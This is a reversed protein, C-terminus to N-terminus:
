SKGLKYNGVTLIGPLEINTPWIYTIVTGTSDIEYTFLSPTGSMASCLTSQDVPKVLYEKFINPAIKSVNAANTSNPLVVGDDRRFSVVDFGRDLLNRRSEAVIRTLREIHKQQQEYLKPPTILFKWIYILPLALFLAVSLAIRLAIESSGEHPGILTWVLVLYILGLIVAIVVRETSLDLALLADRWANKHVLRWFHIQRM